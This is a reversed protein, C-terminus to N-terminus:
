ATATTSSVFRETSQRTPIQALLLSVAAAPAALGWSNGALLYVLVGFLGLGEVMAGGLIAVTAIPQGFFTAPHNVPEEVQWRRRLKATVSQRIILYAPLEGLALLGLLGLLVPGTKENTEFAGDRLLVYAVAAFGIVGFVMALLVVKVPQLRKALEDEM